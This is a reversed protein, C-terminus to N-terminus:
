TAPTMTRTMRRCCHCYTSGASSASSTASRRCTNLWNRISSCSKCVFATVPEDPYCREFLRSAEAVSRESSRPDLPGIPPIHIMLVHGAVGDGLGLEARTFSHRGIQLDAGRFRLPPGWLAMLGAGPRGTLHRHTGMVGGLASATARSLADPVGRREHLALLRPLASLLAWAAAFLGIPSSAAPVVPWGQFGTSPIPKDLNQELSAAMASVVAWWEPHAKPDPRAALMERQDDDVVACFDLLAQPNEPLQLDDSVPLASLWTRAAAPFGLRGAAEEVDMM